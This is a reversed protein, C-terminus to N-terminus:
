TGIVDLPQRPRHQRLPQRRLRHPVRHREQMRHEGQRHALAPRARVRHLVRRPWPAPPGAIGIRIQLKQRRRLQIPHDLRDRIVDDIAVRAAGRQPQQDQHRPHRPQPLRLQEPQAPAIDVEARLPDPHTVRPHPALVRALALRVQARPPRHRHGVPQRRRQLRPPQPRHVAFRVIEHERMRLQPRRHIARLDRAPELPRTTVRTHPLNAEVIQPMRERRREGGNSGCAAFRINM